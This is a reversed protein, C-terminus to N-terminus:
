RGLCQYSFLVLRRLAHTAASLTTVHRNKLVRGIKHVTGARWRASPKFHGFYAGHSITRLRSGLLLLTIFSLDVQATKRRRSQATTVNGM